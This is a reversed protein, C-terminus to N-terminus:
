LLTKFSEYNGKTKRTCHEGEKGLSSGWTPGCSIPIRLMHSSSALRAPLFFGGPWSGVHGSLGPSVRLGEGRWSGQRWPFRDAPWNPGLRPCWSAAARHSGKREMPSTEKRRCGLWLLKQSEGSSAPAWCPGLSLASHCGLIENQGCLCRNGRRGKCFM